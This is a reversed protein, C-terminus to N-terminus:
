RKRAHLWELMEALVKAMPDGAELPRRSFSVPFFFAIANQSHRPSMYGDSEADGETFMFKRKASGVPYTDDLGEFRMELRSSPRHKDLLQEYFAKLQVMTQRNWGTWAVECVELPQGAQLESHVRMVAVMPVPQGAPAGGAARLHALYEATVKKSRDTQAVAAQTGDAKYEQETWRDINMWIRGPRDRHGHGLVLGVDLSESVTEAFFGGATEWDAYPAALVLGALKRNAGAAHQMWPEAKPDGALDPRRVWSVVSAVDLRVPASPKETGRVVSRQGVGVAVEGKANRFRIAGELVHLITRAPDTEVQFATGVVVAEAASTAVIFPQPQKDVRFFATGSLLTFRTEGGEVREVRFATGKELTVAVGGELAFSAQHRSDTLVEDTRALEAGKALAAGGRRAVAGNVKLVRVPLLKAVKVETKPEVVPKPEEKKPLDAVAPRPPEKRPEEIRPPPKPAEATPAEVKKPPTQPANPPAVKPPEIAVQPPEEPVIREPAPPPAPRQTVPVTLQGKPLALLLVAVFLVAAAAVAWPLVPSRRPPFRVVGTQRRTRPVIALIRRELDDPVEGEPEARLAEALDVAEDRCKPCSALHEEVVPSASRRAYAILQSDSICPGAGAAAYPTTSLVETATMMGDYVARCTACAALHERVGSVTETGNVAELIEQRSPCDM